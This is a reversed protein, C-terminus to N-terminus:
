RNQTSSESAIRYLGEGIKRIAKNKKGTTAFWVSLNKPNVGLQAAIERLKIGQKGAATLTDVIRGALEGRKGKPRTSNKRGRAPKSMKTSAASTELAPASGELRYHANGIKKIQRNTKTANQFWAYINASKTGLTNALDKVRLGANGASSLAELVATKLEGRRTRGRRARSTIPAAATSNGPITTSVASSGGAAQLQTHVTTLRSTIQDLEAQLDSKQREIDIAERYLAIRTNSM